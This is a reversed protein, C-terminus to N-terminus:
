IMYWVLTSLKPHPLIIECKMQTSQAPPCTMSLPPQRPTVPRLKPEQKALKASFPPPQSRWLIILEM